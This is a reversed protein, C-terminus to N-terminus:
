LPCYSKRAPVQIIQREPLLVGSLRGGYVCGSDLGISNKRAKLGQRAWHGYVALKEGKYLKHWPPNGASKLDEGLGDWTRINMLLHPSSDKPHEGPVLGAHVVFFDEGEIFFPWAGIWGAWEELEDGMDAKLRELPQSMPIRQRIGNLFAQEHNGRVAESGETKLWKLMKLSHPGRNILDGVFILRFDAKKYNIKSM